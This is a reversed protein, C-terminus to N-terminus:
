CAMKYNNMVADDDDLQRPNELARFLGHDWM